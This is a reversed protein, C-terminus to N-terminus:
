FATPVDFGRGLVSLRWQASESNSCFHDVRRFPRENKSWSRWFGFTSGSCGTYYGSGSGFVTGSATSDVYWSYYKESAHNHVTTRRM